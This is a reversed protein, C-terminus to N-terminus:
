NRLEAGHCATLVMLRGREILAAQKFQEPLKLALSKKKSDRSIGNDKPAGEDEAEHSAERTVDPAVYSDAEEGLNSGVDGDGESTQLQSKVRQAKKVSTESAVANGGKVQQACPRASSPLDLLLLARRASEVEAHIALDCDEVHTQQALAILPSLLSAGAEEERLSCVVGVIGEITRLLSRTRWGKGPPLTRASLHQLNIRDVLEPGLDSKAPQVQKKFFIWMAVKADRALQQARELARKQMSSKDEEVAVSKDRSIKGAPAFVCPSRLSREFSFEHQSLSPGGATRARPLPPTAPASSSRSAEHGHRFTAGLSKTLALSRAAGFSDHFSSAGSLSVFGHQLRRGPSGGPSMLLPMSRGRSSFLPEEEQEHLPRLSSGFSRSEFPASETDAADEPQAHDPGGQHQFSVDVLSSMSWAVDDALEDTTQERRMFSACNLSELLELNTRREEEELRDQEQHYLCPCRKLYGKQLSQIKAIFPQPVCAYLVSLRVHLKMNLMKLIEYLEQRQTFEQRWTKLDELYIEPFASFSKSPDLSGTHGRVVCPEFHQSIESDGLISTHEEAPGATRKAHVGGRGDGVGAGSVESPDTAASYTPFSDGTKSPGGSRLHDHSSAATGERSRSVQMTEYLEPHALAGQEKSEQVGFKLSSPPQQADAAEDAGHPGVRGSEELRASGPTMERQAHPPKGTRQRDAVLLDNLKGLVNCAYGLLETAEGKGPAIHVLGASGDRWRSGGSADSADPAPPLPLPRQSEQSQHGERKWKGLVRKLVWLQESSLTRGLCRLLAGRLGSGDLQDLCAFPIEKMPLTLQMDRLVGLNEESCPAQEDLDIIRQIAQLQGGPVLQELARLAGQQLEWCEAPALPQADLVRRMLTVLRASLPQIAAQHEEKGVFRQETEKHGSASSTLTAALLQLLVHLVECVSLDAAHECQPETKTFVMTGQHAVSAPLQVQLAELLEREELSLLWPGELFLLRHIAQRQSLTCLPKLHEEIEAQLDTGEWGDGNLFAALRSLGSPSMPPAPAEGRLASSACAQQESSLSSALARILLSKLRHNKAASHSTVGCLKLLGVLCKHESASLPEASLPDALVQVVQTAENELPGTRELHLVHRLAHLEIASLVGQAHSFLVAQLIGQPNSVCDARIAAGWVGSYAANLSTVSAPTVTGESECSPHKGRGEVMTSKPDMFGATQAPMSFHLATQHFPTSAMDIQFPHHIAGEAEDQLDRGAGQAGFLLRHKLRGALGTAEPHLLGEESTAACGTESRYSLESWANESKSRTIQMVSPSVGLSSPEVTEDKCGTCGLRCIGWGKLLVYKGPAVRDTRPLAKDEGKHPCCPFRAFCFTCPGSSDACCCSQCLIGPSVLSDPRSTEAVVEWLRRNAYEGELLTRAM